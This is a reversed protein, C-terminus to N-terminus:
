AARRRPQAPVTGLERHVKCWGRAEVPECCSWFGDEPMNVPWSCELPNRTTWPRPKSGPLPKFAHAYPIKDSLSVVSPRIRGDDATVPRPAKKFGETPSKRRMDSRTMGDAKRWGRRDAQGIVSRRTFAPGLLTATEAASYGQEIYLKYARAVIQDNWPSNANYVHKVPQREPLGLRKAMGSVGSASMRVRKSIAVVSLTSDPWLAKIMEIQGDNFRPKHM